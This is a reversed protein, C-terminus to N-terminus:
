KAHLMEINLDHIQLLKTQRVGTEEKLTSIHTKCNLNINVSTYNDEDLSTPERAPQMQQKTGVHIEKM